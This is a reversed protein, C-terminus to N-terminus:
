EIDLIAPRVMAGRVLFRLIASRSALEEKQKNIKRDLFQIEQAMLLILVPFKRERNKIRMAATMDIAEKTKKAQIINSGM